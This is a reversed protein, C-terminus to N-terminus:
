YSISVHSSNLRTSKRDTGSTNGGSPSGQQAPRKGMQQYHGYETEAYVRHAKRSPNGPRDFKAPQLDTRPETISARVLSNDSSAALAATAAGAIFTRRSVEGSASM